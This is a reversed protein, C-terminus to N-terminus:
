QMSGKSKTPGMRLGLPIQLATLAVIVLMPLVSSGSISQFAEFLFVFLVGSVQGALLLMGLSTGEQAPYAAETGHQFIIPGLGMITFGAISADVAILPFSGSFTFILYIPVLLLCGSVWLPKRIKYHDSLIPLVVAGVVGAITFCAGIIGSQASTIGRPSLIDEILSLITNFVGISLFCFLLVTVYNRNLFLKKISSPSMDDREYVPGPPPTPPYEKTFVIALVASLVAIGAYLVYMSHISYHDAIYPSLLMPITFGLYQAMTLIGTATSRETQPFWNAAVKTSLNLLFPQGVAILFQSTLAVGFSSGFVARTIGFVATILAGLMLSRRYGYKDIVFSAPLSFLIFMVMYSMAFLSIKLSSVNYFHEAKSSVPALTLWMMETSMIIPVIALLIIWRYPYINKNKSM